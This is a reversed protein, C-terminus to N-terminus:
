PSLALLVDVPTNRISQYYNVVEDRKYTIDLIVVEEATVSYDADYTQYLKTAYTRPVDAHGVIWDHNHITWYACIDAVLTKELGLFPDCTETKATQTEIRFQSNVACNSVYMIKWPNAEAYSIVLTSTARTGGGRMFTRVKTRPHRRCVLQTIDDAIAKYEGVPEQLDCNPLTPTVEICIPSTDPRKPISLDQAYSATVAMVAVLLTLFKRM